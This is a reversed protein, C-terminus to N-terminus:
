DEEEEEEIAEEAGGGGGAAAVGGGPQNVADSVACRARSDVSRARPCRCALM